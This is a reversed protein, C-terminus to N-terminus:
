VCLKNVLPTRKPVPYNRMGCVLFGVLGCAPIHFQAGESGIEGTGHIGVNGSIGVVLEINTAARRSSRTAGKGGGHHNQEPHHALRCNNRNRIYGAKRSNRTKVRATIQMDNDQKRM